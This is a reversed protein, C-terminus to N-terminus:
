KSLGATGGALLLYFDLVVKSHLHPPISTYSEVIWASVITWAPTWASLSLGLQRGPQCDFDLIADLSATFTWAPTWAPM